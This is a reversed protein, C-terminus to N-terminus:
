GRRIGKYRALRKKSADIARQPTAKTKKSFVDLIVVAEPEVHYIFRWTTKQDVVRLEHCARGITPM